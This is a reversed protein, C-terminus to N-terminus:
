CINGEVHVAFPIKLYISLELSHRANSAFAIDGRLIDGSFFLTLLPTARSMRLSPALHDHTNLVM